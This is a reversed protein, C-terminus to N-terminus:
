PAELNNQAVLKGNRTINSTVSDVNILVEAAKYVMWLM